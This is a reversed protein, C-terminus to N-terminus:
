KKVRELHQRAHSFVALLTRAEKETLLARGLLGHFSQVAGSKNQIKPLLGVLMRFQEEVLKRTEATCVPFSTTRTKKSCRFLEYLTITVAHSLNLTPYSSSAPIYLTLNCKGIEENTLGSSERGFVLAIKGKLKCAHEAFVHLALANRPSINNVSPKATTAASIVCDSLADDLSNNIKADVLIHRAHMARAIAKDGLHEAEPNVLRLEQAGFNAMARAVLGLNEEYQPEVLVVVVDM